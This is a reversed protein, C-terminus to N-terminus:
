IVKNQWCDNSLMCWAEELTMGGGSEQSGNLLRRNPGILRDSKDTFRWPTWEDYPNCPLEGGKTAVQERLLTENILKGSATKFPAFGKALARLRRDIM